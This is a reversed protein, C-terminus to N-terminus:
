SGGNRLQDRRRELDAIEADLASWVEFRAAEERAGRELAAGLREEAQALEGLAQRRGEELEALEAELRARTEMQHHRVRDVEEQDAQFTAALRRRQEEVEAREAALTALQRQREEVEARHAELAAVLHRREEDVSARLGDFDALRRREVEAAARAEELGAALSRREVEVAARAEELEADLEERRSEVARRHAALSATLEDRQQRLRAVEHALEDREATSPRAGGGGWPDDFAVSSRAPRREPQMAVSLRNVQHELLSGSRAGVKDVLWRAVREEESSAWSGEWQEFPTFDRAAPAPDENGADPEADIETLDLQEKPQRRWM